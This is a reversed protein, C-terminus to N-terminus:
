IEPGRANKSPHRVLFTSRPRRENLPTTPGLVSSGLTRTRLIFGIRFTWLATCQQRPHVPAPAALSVAIDASRCLECGCHNSHPLIGEGAHTESSDPNSSGGASIGPFCFLARAHHANREADCHMPRLIASRSRAAVVPLSRIRRRHSGFGDGNGRVM